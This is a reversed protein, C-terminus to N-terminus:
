KAARIILTAPYASGSLPITRIHLSRTKGSRVLYSGILREDPPGLRKVEAYKGDLLFVGAAPGATAEFLVEITRDQDTPNVLTANIDYTIGFAYLSTDLTEHKIPNKGIRIFAWQKGVTYTADIVEKPRPFVGDSSGIRTGDFSVLPLDVGPPDDSRREEEPKAVLRVILPEGSLQRFEMIGSATKPHQVAQSILVRRTGPPLTFIRGVNAQHCNIFEKGAVYGVIVVDVMPDSVGEIVHLEAPQTSPNIVDIVFGVCQPMDNYHHYLLRTSEESTALRGTFLVQYKRLTEPFNSFWIEGSEVEPLRRNEIEVQAPFRAPIYGQGQAEVMMTMQSTHGPTPVHATKPLEIKSISAGPETTVMSRVVDRAAKDLLSVPPNRGTIAAKATGCISAAYKRVSVPVSVERGGCRICIHADGVALGVIVLSGVKMSSDASIVTGDSVEASIEGPVYARVALVRREGLPILLSAPEVAIPPETLLRRLNEAWMAALEHTTTGRAKAEEPTAIAVVTGNVILQGDEGSDRSSIAKLDTVKPLLATLRQAIIGAREAPSLSGNSKQLQIAKRGNVVVYASGDQGKEVSVVAAFKPQEAASLRGLLM